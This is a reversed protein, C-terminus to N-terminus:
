KDLVSKCVSDLNRIFDQTDLFYNPYAKKIEKFNGASILVVEINPNNATEVERAKYLSEAQSLQSKTFAILSLSPKENALNLEMLQYDASKDSSREIHKATIILGQLKRYIQLSQEIKVLEKAISKIDASALAPLIPQKEKYSFMASSLMFFRKFDEAGEGTKFSSQEIMGLTEVATAWSHQLKTRIQLEILLNDLKPYAPSKYKFVQHLSRYGDDKPDKIYDNPPLIPQHEFRRKTNLIDEHLRYVDDINSLIIRVGGIDQMSALSMAPFRKLKRIISPTRKLRQAIIPNKLKLRKVKGRLTAQFTNIPYNHLSRWQSLLAMAEIKDADTSTERMLIKGARKVSSKSPVDLSM